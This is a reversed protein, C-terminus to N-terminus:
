GNNAPRGGEIGSSSATMATMAADRMGCGAGGLGPGLRGKKWKNGQAAWTKRRGMGM